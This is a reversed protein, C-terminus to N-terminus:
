NESAYLKSEFFNLCSHLTNMLLKSNNNDLSAISDKFNKLGSIFWEQRRNDERRYEFGALLNDLKFQINVTM